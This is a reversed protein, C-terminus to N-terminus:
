RACESWCLFLRALFRHIRDGLVWGFRRWRPIANGQSWAGRGHTDDFRWRRCEVDHYTLARDVRLWLDRNKIPVMQGFREWCWQTRRWDELGFRIGRDVYRSPTVLTVRSPQDLAELGRVVSLLELREGHVDPEEDYAEVSQTGDMSELFFHWRGSLGLAEPRTRAESYLLYHPPKISM